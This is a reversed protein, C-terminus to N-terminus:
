WVYMAHIISGDEDCQVSANADKAIRALELLAQHATPNAPSLKRWGIGNLFAWANSTNNSTFLGGVKASTLAAAGAVAQAAAVGPPAMEPAGPGTKGNAGPPATAIQEPTIEPAPASGGTRTPAAARRPTSPSKTTPSM